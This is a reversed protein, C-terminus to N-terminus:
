DRCVGRQNTETLVSLHHHHHPSPYHHQHHLHQNSPTHQAHDCATDPRLKRARAARHLRNLRLAAARGRAGVRLIGAARAGSAPGTGGHARVRAWPPSGVRQAIHVVALTPGGLEVRLGARTETFGSEERNESLM